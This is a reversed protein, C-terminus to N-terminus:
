VVEIEVATIMQKSFMIIELMQSNKLCSSARLFNSGPLM